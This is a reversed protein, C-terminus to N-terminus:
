QQKTARRRYRFWADTYGLVALASFLFVHLVLMLVYTVIVVFLPLHGDIHLWHVIALGQLWFVAFFVVAINQIWVVGTAFALVSTLAMTIAIVRGFNLDCFRGYRGSEDPLQRYLMYGVLLFVSYITWRTLVVALMMMNATAQPDATLIEAQERLNNVRAWELLMAVPAQWFAVVDDVILHFALVAVVALISSVQFTLTLSRTSQLIVALMLAPVWTTLVSDLVHVVPAGVILSVAMLITAALVGEIAALRAGQRLVLVVMFAGSVFQLLPLLLTAALALVANQPRAVLWTAVSQV